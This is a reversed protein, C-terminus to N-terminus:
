FHNSFCIKELVYKKAKNKRLTCNLLVVYRATEIEKELYKMQNRLNSITM